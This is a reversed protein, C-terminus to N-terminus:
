ADATEQPFLRRLRPHPVFPKWEHEPQALPDAIVLLAAPNHGLGIHTGRVEVNERNPGPRELSLQFPVVRDTRSYISTSPVPLPGRAFADGQIPSGLTIVQRVSKPTRRALARAYLGGLSWGVISVTRGHRQGLEDLRSSLGSITRDTPGQNTGLRWGHVWYGRDRLFWRLARTSSDDAGLGPLVLVPHGDGRPATRLMPTSALFAAFEAPASRLERMVASQLSEDSM